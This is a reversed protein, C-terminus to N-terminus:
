PAPQFVWIGWLNPTLAAESPVDSTIGTAKNSWYVRQTTQRGNGRLIGIDAKISEGARPTLGLVTLPVAISYVGNSADLQVQNSVDQVQDVTITRSPSSFPVPNTTGKVVPRYLTAHTRGNVQYVLLRLDGAVPDKRDPNASPDAGIMLDLAGGSKFPANPVDGANQLLNPDGTRFAAYLHGAAIAVAASAEHDITAWNSSALASSLNHLAPAGGSSITVNLSLPGVSQPHAAASAVSFSQAASLEAASVEVPVDPLRKLTNLGDVRVLSSRDGDVLYVNGEKTANLSPYFNEDHPSVDNLLMNRPALPMGWPKGTRVDQFFQTVFLGDSTFLYMPGLNGNIAWLDGIGPAPAPIFGGLLHTTGILEGPHDAIPATHSAHLGPWLSPYSWAHGQADFGGLSAAPFPKPATTLVTAQASTIIQGGGDSVPIQAANSITTGHALDYIPIGNPLLRIPAYSMAKGSIYSALVVPGNQGAQITFSGTVENAFSVEDPDVQGNDNRDSWTFLVSRNAATQSLDAGAPLKSHFAAGALVPWDNARGLAAVPHLIGGEDLYLMATTAGFADQAHFSNTFYRHGNSYLVDTAQGARPPPALDGPRQRYLVAAVSSKGTSWDLHFEMQHYYFKTKDTPDLVGGGGYEPPGYFANILKGDLTWVSIRKPQFDEEAVWLHQNSDITIGRPNNMHLPDYPGLALQGAHGIAHELRGQMSFVKVQNSAGRDSIYISSGDLTIGVPDELGSGIVVDPAGLAQPTMQPNVGGVPARYCMLRKGSLVYLNGQADFVSGRPDQLQIVGMVKGAVLNVLVIENRMALSVVAVGNRVSLGALQDMVANSRAISWAKSDYPQRTGGGTFSYNLVSRDGHTTLATIRLQMPSTPSLDKLNAFVSAVYISHDPGASTDRAMYPAGTWDGGIWGRGGQKHGDLDVWALASGGESIFSGLYILPQSGTIARDGPVFLAASGPTHNTLWGSGHSISNVSAAEWPPSGASYATFEYRLDIASHVI